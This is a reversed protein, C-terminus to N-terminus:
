PANSVATEQPLATTTSHATLTNNGWPGITKPRLPRRRSQSWLCYLYDRGRKYHKYQKHSLPLPM